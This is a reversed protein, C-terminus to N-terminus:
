RTGWATLARVAAARRGIPVRLRAWVRECYPGACLQGDGLGWVGAPCSCGSPASPLLGPHARQVGFVERQDGPQQPLGALVSSCVLGRARGRMCGQYTVPEQCPRGQTDLLRRHSFSVVRKEAPRLGRQAQPFSWRLQVTRRAWHEIERRLVTLACVLAGCRLPHGLLVRNVVSQRLGSALEDPRLKCSSVASTRALGQTPCLVLLVDKSVGPRRCLDVRCCLAHVLEAGRDRAREDRRHRLL